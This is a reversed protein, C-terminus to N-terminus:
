EFVLQGEPVKALVEEELQSGQVEGQVAQSGVEAM